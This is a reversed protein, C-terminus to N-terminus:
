TLVYRVACRLGVVSQLILLGEGGRRNMMSLYVGGGISLVARTLRGKTKLTRSAARASRMSRARKPTCSNWPSSAYQTQRSPAKKSTTMYFLGVPVCGLATSATASL